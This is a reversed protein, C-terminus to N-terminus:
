IREKSSYIFSIFELCYIGIRANFASLLSYIGIIGCTILIMHFFTFYFRGRLETIENITVGYIKEKSISLSISVVTIICPVLTVVIASLERFKLDYDSIKVKFIFLDLLVFLLLVLFAILDFFFSFLRTQKKNMKELPKM